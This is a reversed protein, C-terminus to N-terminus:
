HHHADHHEPGHYDLKYALPSHTICHCPSRRIGVLAANLAAAHKTSAFLSGIFNTRSPPLALAVLLASLTRYFCTLCPAVSSEISTSSVLSYVKIPDQLTGVRSSDLPQLDFADYGEMEGMLQFRELGTAQQEDTPIEGSKGGPGFLQPPPAGSRRSVTTSFARFPTSNAPRAARFAVSRAARLATNLMAFLSSFSPVFRTLRSESLTKDSTVSYRESFWHFALIPERPRRHHSECCYM